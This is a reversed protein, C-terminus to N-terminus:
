FVKRAAFQSIRELASRSACGLDSCLYLGVFRRPDVSVSMLKVGGNARVVHCWECMAAMDPTPTSNRHFVMGLPRRGPRDRFLLFARPGLAWSLVGEVQLPFVVDPPLEVEARDIERFCSRLEEESTLMDM